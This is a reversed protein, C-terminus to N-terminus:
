LIKKMKELEKKPTQSVSYWQIVLFLPVIMRFPCNHDADVLEKILLTSQRLQKKKVM